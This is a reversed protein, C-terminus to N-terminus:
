VCRFSLACSYLLAQTVAPYLIMQTVTTYARPVHEPRGRGRRRRVGMKRNSCDTSPRWFLLFCTYEPQGTCYRRPVSAFPHSVFDSLRPLYDYPLAPSCASVQEFMWVEVCGRLHAAQLCSLIFLSCVGEVVASGVAGLILSWYDACLGM